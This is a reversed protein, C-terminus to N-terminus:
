FVQPITRMFPPTREGGFDYLLRMSVSNMRSKNNHLLVVPMGTLGSHGDCLRKPPATGAM